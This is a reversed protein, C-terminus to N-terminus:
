QESVIQELWSKTESSRWCETICGGSHKMTINSLDHSHISAMYGIAFVNEKWIAKVTALKNIDSSCLKNNGVIILPYAKAESLRSLSDLDDVKNIAHIRIGAQLLLSSFLFYELTMEATDINILWISARPKQKEARLTMLTLQRQWAQLWIGQELQYGLPENQWRHTLYHHSPLYVHRCLNIFPMTKNWKDLLQDVSTQKLTILSNSLESQVQPWPQDNIIDISSLLKPEALLVAVKSISVGRDLWSIIHHIQEINQQSYLRHGKPTREPKVLGYRREWARLTVAAVGTQLAAKGINVYDKSQM